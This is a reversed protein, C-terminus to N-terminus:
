HSIRKPNQFFKSYNEYLNENEGLIEYDVITWKSDNYYKQYGDMLRNSTTLIEKEIFERTILKNRLVVMSHITKSNDWTFKTFVKKIQNRTEIIDNIKDIIYQSIPQRRRAIPKRSM